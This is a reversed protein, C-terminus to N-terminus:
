KVLGQKKAQVRVGNAVKLVVSIFIGIDSQTAGNYDMNDDLEDINAIIKNIPKVDVAGKTRLGASSIGRSLQVFRHLDQVTSKKPDLKQVATFWKTLESKYLAEGDAALTISKVQNHAEALYDNLFTKEFGGADKLKKKDLKKLYVDAAKEFAAHTTLVDERSRAKDAKDILDGLNVGKVAGDPVNHKKKLTKWQVRSPVAM